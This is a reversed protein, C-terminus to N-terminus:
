SVSQGAGLVGVVDRMSIMGSVDGGSTVVVQRIGADNMKAIADAIAANEECLV